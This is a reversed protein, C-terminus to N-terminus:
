SEMAKGVSADVRSSFGSCGDSQPPLVTPGHVAASLRDLVHASARRYEALKDENPQAPCEAPWQGSARYRQLRGALTAANAFSASPRDSSSVRSSPREFARFAYCRSGWASLSRVYRGSLSALSLSPM